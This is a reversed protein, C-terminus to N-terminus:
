RLTEEGIAAAEARDHLIGLAIDALSHALGDIRAERAETSM